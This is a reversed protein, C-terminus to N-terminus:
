EFQINKNSMIMIQTMIIGLIFLAIISGTLAFSGHYFYGTIQLVISVFILRGGQQVAVVKAKDEPLYNLCLSYIIVSPIIEAIVFILMAATIIWPSRFGIYSAYVIALLSAIFLGLGLVLWKYQSMRSVIFGLGISGIAFVVALVGQYYGFAHLSVHLSKVYLLPSIGVFIWYPTATLVINAIMLVLPKSRLVILYNSLALKAQKNKPKDKKIFLMTALLTLLALALLTIFNGRWHFYLAIFSGIVPAVGAAINFSGNLMAMLVQQRKIPYNDAIILFSLIAPAAIGVGQLFRGLLLLSYNHTFVCCLSGFIFIILGYVIVVKRGFCDSLTGIIFLSIFYGIFNVSLLAEVWFTTVHFYGQIESFSPIFLDFEMGTLFDMIIVTLIIMNLYKYKM